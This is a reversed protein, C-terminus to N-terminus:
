LAQRANAPDYFPCKAVTAEVTSGDELKITFRSGPEADDPHVYALGVVANCAESYAASTVRGAIEGGRIVLVCEPPVPGDAPLAFGVLRRTLPRGAQAQIARQGIFFPKGKAIAWELGAEHPFTLGDTDQGVIVHGKELRLVRQAEVGFPRAGTARLLDWLSLGYSAPCHIEFGLEGVFGVRLLRVPIGSLQGTRVGLYPFADAGLDIDTDLSALVERSRPGALNVAAYAATVNAIDADLRWEAQWRLMSRYLTDVGSSTATVYFHEPALRCAVGDDIVAGTQDCALVYRTRGVPQKGHVGTYIRSLLEAADPGRIELGGLTSVDILGVDTRVARVEEAIADRSGYFAPRYWLGALMMEAGLELHRLHMPTLRYPEFGRGALQAFSEPLFPPRQTTTAAELSGGNASQVIRLANLAAHRGQSPGMGATTYRKALEPSDFGDAVANLLDQVTQDEDLDVFDKGKPHPFIPWPNSVIDASAALRPKGELAAVGAARGDEIVREADFVQNVSGALHLGAPLNELRFSALEPDHVLQAGAHCALQGLPTYGVSTVLLDCGIALPEGATQGQGTIRDILVAELRPGARGPLAEVVTWGHRVSFSREAPRAGGTPNQRLDVVEAVAVGADILDCATEYGQENATVVVARRGPRVGWLRLLRQAASALMVGPLDNNRFVMPQEISGTALVVARARLKYLRNGQVVALWNDAFLGTCTAGSLVQVGPERLVDLMADARAPGDPAREYLLSGGPRPEDDVVVVEAGGASAAQAAALGAPGGGIVAVDAHLYAKDHYTPQSERDLRGLGARARVLPEWFRWSGNPRYFAKYYFGVPLFPALRELRRDRDKELSGRYNQGHAALGERLPLRDAPVNPEDGLQVYANSDLGRAGLLGRPRHYKFSRSLVDVGNAALASALTDGALGEYQRGEFRFRLTRTRDLHLGWPAPLRAVSM